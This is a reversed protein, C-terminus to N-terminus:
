ENLGGCGVIRWHRDPDLVCNYYQGFVVVQAAFGQFFRIQRVERSGPIRGILRLLSELDVYAYEGSIRQFDNSRIMAPKSAGEPLLNLNVSDNPTLSAERSSSGM